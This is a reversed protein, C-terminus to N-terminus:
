TVMLMLKWFLAMVCNHHSWQNRKWRWKKQIKKLRLNLSCKKRIRRSKLRQSFEELEEEVVDELWHRPALQGRPFRGGTSKRPTLYTRSM